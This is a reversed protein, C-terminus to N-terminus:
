IAGSYISLLSYLLYTSMYAQPMIIYSINEKPICGNYLDVSVLSYNMWFTKFGFHFNVLFKGIKAISKNVLNTLVSVYDRYVASRANYCGKM